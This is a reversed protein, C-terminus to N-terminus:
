SLRELFFEWNSVMRFLRNNLVKNTYKYDTALGSSTLHKPSSASLIISEGVPYELDYSEFYHFPLHAKEKAYHVRALYGHTQMFKRFDVKHCYKVLVAPTLDFVDAKCDGEDEGENIKVSDEWFHKDLAPFGLSSYFSEAETILDKPTFKEVFRDLPPLDSFPFYKELVSGESWVQELIQSYMHDPIPGNIDVEEAGYKAHLEHRVFAHLQQQMPKLEEM